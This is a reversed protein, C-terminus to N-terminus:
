VRLVGRVKLSVRSVCVCEYLDEKMGHEPVSHKNIRRLYKWLTSRHERRIPTHTRVTEKPLTEHNIEDVDEEDDIHGSEEDEDKDEQDSSTLSGGPFMLADM